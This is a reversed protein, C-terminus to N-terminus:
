RGGYEDSVTTGLIGLDGMKMRLETPFHGERGIAATLHTIKTSAVLIYFAASRECVM